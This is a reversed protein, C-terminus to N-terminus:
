KRPNFWRLALPYQVLSNVFYTMLEIKKDKLLNSHKIYM